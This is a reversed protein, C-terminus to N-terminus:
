QINKHRVCKCFVYKYKSSVLHLLWNNWSLWLLHQHHHLIGKHLFLHIGVRRYSMTYFRRGSSVDLFFFNESASIDVSSITFCVYICSYRSTVSEFIIFCNLNKEVTFGSFEDCRKLFFSNRNKQRLSWTFVKGIHKKKWSRWINKQSNM